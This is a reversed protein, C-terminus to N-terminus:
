TQYPCCSDGNPDWARFLLHQAGETSSRQLGQGVSFLRYFDGQLNEWFEMALLNGRTWSAWCKDGKPFLSRLCPGVFTHVSISNKGSVQDDHCIDQADLPRSSTVNFFHLVVHLCNTTAQIKLCFEAVGAQLLFSANRYGNNSHKRQSSCPRFPHTPTNYEYTTDKCLWSCWCRVVWTPLVCFLCQIWGPQRGSIKNWVSM